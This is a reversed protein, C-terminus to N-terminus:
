SKSDAEQGERVLRSVSSVLASPDIPKPIHAHFGAALATAKDEERAYATLAIAPIKSYRGDQARIRRILNYGDLGAMGIDSVVLDPKCRELRDLAEHASAAEFVQAGQQEFIKSLLERTDPEDDVILLQLGELCRVPSPKRQTMASDMKAVSARSAKSAPLSVTFTAGQNEGPSDAVVTGGHLEALHRVIALGIGLGGFARTTSSDAQRFREFVYPLFKSSIGRGSDRIQVNINGDAEFCKVEIAGGHPTFKIANSLLNWFIQQLREADANLSIFDVVFDKKIEIEKADAAPRLSDISNDLLSIMDISRVNLRLKGTIIRSVDLLDEILKAQARANREIIELAHSMSEADFSDNRLMKTWGLIPTLPTRLEHSVVALFDDKMRNAQQAENYLRANDIATAARRGLDEALALDKQNLQRDSEATAFTLAGLTRERACLPVIMYSKLGLHRIVDLHVGQIGSRKLLDDNIDQVLVPTGTRIVRPLPDEPDPRYRNGAARAYAAKEPDYHAVALCHLEGDDKVMSVACYDSVEPVTLQAVRQLTAEYELSSALLRSAEALFAARRESEVAAARAAEAAVRAMQEQMLQVREDARLRVEETKRYLEVFVSVKAKLVEPIVPALIYDVAGLTYARAKHVDADYFSTIFIIPTRQSTERNRILEATEFGDMVPMNVDLLIVAFTQSMLCRLADKGSHATVVDGLETVISEIAMAKDPKDDVVLIRVKELPHM